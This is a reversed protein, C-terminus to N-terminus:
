RSVMPERGSVPPVLMCTSASGRISRSGPAGGGPEVGVSDHILHRGFVVRREPGEAHAVDVVHQLSVPRPADVMADGAHKPHASDAAAFSGVRGRAPPWATSSRSRAASSRPRSGRPGSSWASAERPLDRVVEPVAPGVREPDFVNLDAVMGERVLGRDTFGWAMAPALTLMRVAEELTFEQRDRVWYGLLHTHISADAIQSLHAGSDSFTMVTRPHRMVALLVEPDQPYLSPQIFLQGLDTEIALDIMAEVPTVGRQAAVENITPNPPLGREYVRIGDFDPKRPMAGIGRWQSYDGEMGARILRERM